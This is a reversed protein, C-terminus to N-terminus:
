LHSLLLLSFILLSFHSITVDGRVEMVGLLACVYLINCKKEMLNMLRNFM